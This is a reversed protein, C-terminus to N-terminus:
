SQPPVWNFITEKLEITRKNFSGTQWEVKVTITAENINTGDIDVKTSRSFRSDTGSQHNYFTGDHKLKTDLCSTCSDLSGDIVDVHFNSDTPIGSLWDTSQGDLYRLLNGDRTNRVIEIAEQGLYFATTQDKAYIASFLSQSSLTLPATIAVVLVSIAVMTEVLTFGKNMM